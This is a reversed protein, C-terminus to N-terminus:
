GFTVGTLEEATRWLSAAVGADRAARSAAVKRPSGRLEGIGDPGYYDGGAVDPMTAAYLSPLAGAAANQAVLQNGIAMLRDQISETHSQLETAAYGPHAAVSLVASGRAGLRRNLELAFMLDALKSQAYAAWRRYRRTHWNLDDLAIHGIRHVGSALTVVRGSIKPLLLGTLAFHGLFNTGLQSEFGDATRAKPVAMIGANNILVDFGESVAAFARVSSLDALDLPRVAVKGPIRAAVAEAKDFNRCAMIVHAGHEALARTTAEGLGSNAGTIVFTRGTQDPIDQQTWHAM